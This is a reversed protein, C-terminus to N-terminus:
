RRVDAVAILYVREDELGSWTPSSFGEARQQYQLRIPTKIWRWIRITM